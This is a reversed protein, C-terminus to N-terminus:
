AKGAAKHLARAPRAQFRLSSRPVGLAARDPIAELLFAAMVSRLSSTAHQPLREHINRREKKRDEIVILRKNQLCNLHRMLPNVFSGLDKESHSTRHESLISM